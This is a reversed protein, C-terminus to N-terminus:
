VACVSKDNITYVLIVLAAKSDTLGAIKIAIANIINDDPSPKSVRVTGIGALAVDYESL